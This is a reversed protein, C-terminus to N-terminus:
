PFLRSLEVKFRPLQQYTVPVLGALRTQKELRFAVSSQGTGPHNTM